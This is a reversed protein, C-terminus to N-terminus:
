KICHAVAFEPYYDPGDTYSRTIRARYRGSLLPKYRIFQKRDYQYDSVAVLENNPDYLSLTYHYGNLVNYNNNSIWNEGSVTNWQMWNLSLYIDKGSSVDSQTVHVAYNYSNLYSSPYSCYNGNLYTEYAKYADIMGPGCERTLAPDISTPTSYVDETTYLEQASAMLISKMLMPDTKLNPFAEMLLACVGAVVPCAASTGGNGQTTFEPNVYTGARAGPSCIDPKYTDDLSYNYLSGEQIIDDMIDVTNLDDINGVAIVNYAYPASCLKNEPDESEVNGASFCLTIYSNSVVYDVYRSVYDYENSFQGWEWYIAAAIVSVGSDALNEIAEFYHGDSSRGECYVEALPAVGEYNNTFGSLISLMYNGHGASYEPPYDPFHILDNQLHYDFQAYLRSKVDEAMGYDFNAVFQDIIGVKVGSGTLGLEDRLTNIGTIEQWVGYPYDETETSTSTTATEEGTLELEEEVVPEPDYYYIAEISQNNVAEAIESKTMDAVVFPAYKSVFVPEVDIEYSASLDNLIEANNETHLEKEVDRKLEVLTQAQASVEEKSLTTKKLTLLEPDITVGSVLEGSTEATRIENKILNSREAEDVDSLWMAVSIKENDTASSLVNELKDDIKFDNNIVEDNVAVASIPLISSIIILLVMFVSLLIKSNKM